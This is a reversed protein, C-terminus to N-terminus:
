GLGSGKTEPGAVFAALGAMKSNRADALAKERQYALEGAESVLGYANRAIMLARYVSGRVDNMEAVKYKLRYLYSEPVGTKKALRYRVMNERDKRGKWEADMLEDAWQAAENLASSMVGESITKGNESHKNDSM